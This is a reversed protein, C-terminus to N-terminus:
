KKERSWVLVLGQLDSTALLSEDYNFSVGLVPCAHGQLKNVVPRVEREIDLFYVCSDESGTVVCAGERFSMLPCFTSRVPCRVSKHRVSFRRKLKLTGEQDLVRYLCVVNAACNVLLTPDRAERSIWARWSICTVPCGEQLTVRRCRQLKAGGGSVVFVFSTITGKNMSTLWWHNRGGDQLADDTRLSQGGLMKELEPFIHYDSPTLDPSYAPHDFVDWKFEDLLRKTVAASPPRANDHILVVGSTLMGRRKNQVTGRWDCVASDSM